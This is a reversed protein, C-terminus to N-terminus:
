VLLGRESVWDSACVCARRSGPRPGIPSAGIPTAARGPGRRRQARAVTCAASCGHQAADRSHAHLLTPGGLADELRGAATGFLLHGTRRYVPYHWVLTNTYVWGSARTLADAAAKPLTCSFTQVRVM